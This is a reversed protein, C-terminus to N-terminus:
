ESQELREYLEGITITETVDTVKNYITLLTSFDTCDCEQSAGRKGLAIEQEDRWAQTREPHMYWPLSITNFRNRKEEAAMWTRYFWNSSGNPTSLAICQGGTALTQQASLWIAEISDIFACEDFILLSTSLSRGSNESSATAKIQSGNNFRLSLKNNELAPLRLWSPLGEWMVKVKTVLNKATDQDIAIVLVNKDTYFTMLWLAYGASLTSIGLQRSKLVINYQHDQFEKLTKEQFPYLTFPIKGRQPHQIKCYRKMFYVPDLFCKKWETKILKKYDITPAPNAM